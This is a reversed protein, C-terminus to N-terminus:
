PSCFAPKRFVLATMVHQM